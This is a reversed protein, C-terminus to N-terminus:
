AAAAVYASLLGSWGHESDYIAIMEPARDGYTELGRHELEVLTEREGVGTFSVDVETMITPDAHWDADIQWSLVVRRPPDWTLVAGWVCETGDPTREFWRGGVEPEMEVSTPAQAGIHYNETPWWRDLGDTFLAFAREQPLPVSTSRRVVTNTQENM